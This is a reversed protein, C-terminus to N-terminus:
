LNFRKKLNEIQQDLLPHQTLRSWSDNQTAIKALKLLNIFDKPCIVVDNSADIHYSTHNPLTDM